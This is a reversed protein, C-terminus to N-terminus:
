TVNFKVSVTEGKLTGLKPTAELEYSGAALEHGDVKGSWHFSNKGIHDTHHFSGIPKPKHGKRLLLVKVTTTAAETDFYRVKTGKSPSFLKPALKLHTDTPPLADAAVFPQAYETGGSAFVAWGQGGANTASAVSDVSVAGGRESFLTVPGFWGNGGNDSYALRLGTGNTLWTAFLDGAGDQTLSPQLAAGSAVKVAGAFTAPATFRRFQTTTTAENTFLLGLGSPGSTLAPNDANCQVGALPSWPSGPGPSTDLAANTTSANIGAYTFVLGENSPCPGAEILQFVGLLGTTGSLQSVVEGGLNGVVYSNPSPRLTAFPPPSTPPFAGPSYNAPSTLSNTQFVPNGGAAVYGIGVNGGFLPTVPMPGTGSTDGVATYSLAYPFPTFTAGGDTSVWEYMGNQNNNAAGDVEEFVRVTTGAVLVSPPDFYQAHSPDPVQLTVRDCATAAVSVKCFNLVTDAPPTIWAIYAAGTSDVAVAPTSPLGPTNSGIAIPKSIAHAGAAFGLMLIGTVVWTVLFRAV